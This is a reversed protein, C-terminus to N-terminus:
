RLEESIAIALLWDDLQLAGHVPQQAACLAVCSLAIRQPRRVRGMEKQHVVELGETRGTHTPSVPCGACLGVGQAGVREELSEEGADFSM